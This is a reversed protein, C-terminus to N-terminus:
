SFRLPLSDLSHISNGPRWKAPGDFEIHEVQEVIAALVAGVEARALNQGVCGHIGAGMGLHGQLERTIDFKDPEPWKREDLNAAGLSCLIKTGAEIKIGSVEADINATRFFSHVPSTYRLVEEFTARLYHPNDKLLQFQDPNEALCFLLNGIGTVTTDVGASLLSRVLMGAELESLEAVTPTAM